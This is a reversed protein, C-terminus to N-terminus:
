ARTSASLNGPTVESDPVLKLGSPKSAAAAQNCAHISWDELTMGAALASKSFARFDELSVELSFVQNAIDQLKARQIEAAEDDAMLRRIVELSSGPIPRDTSLWNNVAKLSLGGCQQGLWKRTHGLSKLWGKIEEKTPNMCTQYGRQPLLLLTNKM